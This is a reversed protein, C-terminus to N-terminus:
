EVPGGIRSEAEDFQQIRTAAPPPPPWNNPDSSDSSVNESPSPGDILDPDPEPQRATDFELYTTERDVTATFASGGPTRYKDPFEPFERKERPADGPMPPTAFPPKPTIAVHYTAPPLGEGLVSFNGDADLPGGASRSAHYFMVDGGSVPQGEFTVRGNVPFVEPPAPESCGCVALCGAFLAFRLRLNSALDSDPARPRRDPSM